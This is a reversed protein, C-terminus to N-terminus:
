TLWKALGHRSVQGVIRGTEDKVPFPHDAEVLQRAVEALITNASIVAHGNSAKTAKELIARVRLVREAAIGQIFKRVHDNAPKMLLEEPTAVQLIKGEAMIAIRDGLRVAEDLDHTVFVITKHLQMQLRRFEDQMERRILPDLASFPEDLFWIDPNTVLSRAIGVRQQQGGSLEHPFRQHKDGLGVLDLSKEAQTLREQKEIGQVRLPFAVNEIANLHPLLGFNQFVMSMTKRRLTILSEKDASVIDTGAITISGRSAEHLGTLCRLLTSKGSGSLGMIMFIEGKAVSFTAERLAISGGASKISDASPEAGTLAHHGKALGFVKWVDRAEIMM